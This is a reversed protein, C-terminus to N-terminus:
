NSDELEFVHRWGKRAAEREAIKKSRGVGSGICNDDAFVEIEYVNEGNEISEKVVQFSLTVRSRQAWHHLQSKFDTTEHIKEDLGFRKLLKVLAMNTRRYGHDLYIAGIMAEMANGVMNARIDERRMKVELLDELGIKSGLLNLNKRSVIKSRRQTLAGEQASEDQKYLYEAVSLGLVADGLFELRENSKKGTTDGDLVSSHRLAKKYYFIKKVRLRFHKRVLARIDKDTKDGILFRKLFQM